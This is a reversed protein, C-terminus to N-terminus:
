GRRFLLNPLWLALQPFIMTLILGCAQITVFPWVSRYIDGITIDKPVVGKMLFLCYGFPPTLTAMQMNIIFLIGFWVPDFGLSMIIPIYIPMTIFLIVAMDLFAGLIFFSLQILILIGWRGILLGTTVVEVLEKAGMADYVKGFTLAGMFIWFTLATLKLSATLSESFTNWTLKRKIAVTVLSGLAGVASAEVPTALGAFISGIVLFIISGPLILGKLSKVKEWWLVREAKPIPPGMHPQIKCRVTIYIIFLASLLLGPLVGGAFLKGVSQKAIIAYIIAIISPPILLGLAAGAQISGIAISKNYGRKRMLPLAISGMTLTATEESGVVAAFVTGVGVSASALAGPIPALWNQLTAFLDDAIGSYYMMMGMFVFMPICVLLTFKCVGIAGFVSMALAEPGWLYLALLMSVGGLGFAIPLGAILILIMSGFFIVTIWEISM